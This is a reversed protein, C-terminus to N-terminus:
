ILKINPDQKIRESLDIEQHSHDIEIMKNIMQLTIQVGMDSWYM